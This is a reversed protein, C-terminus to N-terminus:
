AAFWQERLTPFLAEYSLGTAARHGRSLRLSVVLIWCLFRVTPRM